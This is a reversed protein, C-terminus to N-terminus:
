RFTVSAHLLVDLAKGRGVEELSRRERTKRVEMAVQAGHLDAGFAGSEGWRLIGFLRRLERGERVPLLVDRGLVAFAEAPQQFFESDREEGLLKSRGLRCRRLAQARQSRTPLM